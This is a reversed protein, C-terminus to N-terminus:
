VSPKEMCKKHQFVFGFHMFHQMTTLFPGIHLFNLLTQVHLKQVIHTFPCVSQCVSLCASMCICQDCCTLFNNDRITVQLADSIAQERACAM